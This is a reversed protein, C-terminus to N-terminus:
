PALVPHTLAPLPSFITAHFESPWTGQRGMLALFGELPKSIALRLSIYRPSEVHRLGGDRPKGSGLAIKTLRVALDRPVAAGISLLLALVV